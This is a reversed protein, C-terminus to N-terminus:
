FRNLSLMSKFSNSLEDAFNKSNFINFNNRNKVLYEKMEQVRTLNKSYNIAKFIYEEDDKAVLEPLGLSMNISEGCKSLFNKGKKTLFPVCMWTCELSTTGGNYPFPDLALDILNYRNLLEDRDSSDEFILQDEKVGNELFYDKFTKKLFQDDLEKTKLFLKANSNCLIKSWIKIVNKNIKKINNFSGFTVYGNRIAPIKSNLLISNEKSLVSWTNSMRWIKEKFQIEEEKTVSNKDAIVYDIESLGTSALYGAWSIQVEAPRNFFISMRNGATYGSLDILININDSKIKKIVSLDNMFFIKTWSKFFLKLEKTLSDEENDNYYAYLEFENNNALNKIVDFIQYGVAHKRFDASVFGIKIKNNKSNPLKIEKFDKEDYKKLLTRIKDTIFFYDEIRFNELYNLNFIYNQYASLNNPNLKLSEKYFDLGKLIEGTSCWCNGLAELVEFGKNNLLEKELFEIAKFIKGSKKFSDALNAYINKFNSDIKLGEELILIASSYKRKKNLAMGLNNYAPVFERNIQICKNFYIISEELQGRELFLVGLNNYAQFFDSNIELAKKFNSFSYDFQGAKQYVLGLNNYIEFDNPKYKLCKKFNLIADDLNELNRYCEALNFYAEFYDKNIAIASNFYDVAEKFKSLNFFITGINYYAEIYKSDIKIIKKFQNIAKQYSNKKFLIVGYINLLFLNDSNFNLLEICKIEAEDLKKSNFLNLVNDIDLKLTM